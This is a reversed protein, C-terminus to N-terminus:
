EGKSEETTESKVEEKVEATEAKVEKNENKNMRQQYRAKEKEFKERALERRAAAKLANERDVARIADTMTSEEGEDKTYAVVPLGGRAEVIADVLVTLILNVSKDLDDNGPIPYTVEDPDCNTDVIAFVPINLKRAERVAIKEEDPAVLIIAAPMKRMEKIGELNKSLKDKLKRKVALEKKPLSDWLGEKEEEELEKLRKIRLQITKFNTLTGGLWRNNIYFSGSREAEEKVVEKAIPKTGILLVKGGDLVIEKLKQYAGEIAEKTKNLDIIYVGNRPCYIYKQMKPNWKRTQHGYHVGAELLKKITILPQSPDFAVEEMLKADEAELAEKKAQAENEKVIKEAEDITVSKLEESM